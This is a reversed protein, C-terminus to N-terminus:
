RGPRRVMARLKSAARLPRSKFRNGLWREFEDAPTHVFWRPLEYRASSRGALGPWGSVALQFGLEKVMMVTAPTYDNEPNGFPYAFSTPEVGLWSKLDEGCGAIESQQVGLNQAGLRFHRRTHAGIEFQGSGAVERLEDLSMPRHTERPPLVGDVAAWRRLQELGEDVCDAPRGQLWLSIEKAATVGDTMDARLSAGGTSLELVPARDGACESCTLREIEDWWYERPAGIYGTSVFLAAPVGHARLCPLAATLNNAYGDDFTVVVARKPLEGRDLGDALQQLSLPTFRRALIEVHRRFDTTGITIGFPDFRVDAISHYILIAAACPRAGLRTM